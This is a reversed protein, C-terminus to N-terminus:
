VESRTANDEHCLEFPCAHVDVYLKTTGLIQFGTRIRSILSSSHTLITMFSYNFVILQRVLGLGRLMCGLVTYTCLCFEQIAGSTCGLLGFAVVVVVVM